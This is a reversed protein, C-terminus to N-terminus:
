AICDILFLWFAEIQFGIEIFEIENWSCSKGICYYM